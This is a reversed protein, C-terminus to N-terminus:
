YIFVEVLAGEKTEMQEHPIYVLADSYAFSFLMASSQKDLIKVSNGEIKAKLFHAREDNKLYTETLPLLIKKLEFNAEGMAIKLAKLVYLYYCTLAAAPNGPLAFITCNGKIGLFMPKGPKQHVKYFLREVGLAELAKGVFDYDGVSIGGSIIVFDQNDILEKLTEVTIEYNDQVHVIQQVEFGTENIVTELMIGNSEYIQGHGLTQGAKVLENGTVLIAISPKQFVTVTQIGLGALFGIASPNLPMGAKLALDGQQIQEGLPRINQGLIPLKEVILTKGNLQTKEQMVVADADLPVAAGTFIRVAENAQMEPQLGSGAQVEAILNFTTNAGFKIAYGDVGSQNFPPMAIPSFVDKALVFGRAKQLPLETTKQQFKLDSVIKQAQEVFIM